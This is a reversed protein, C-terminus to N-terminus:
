EGLPFFLLWWPQHKGARYERGDYRLTYRETKAAGQADGEHRIVRAAVVLDAYGHSAATAMGLTLSAQDYVLEEAAGCFMGKRAESRSMPVGRLVPRLAVGEAVFLSLEDSWIGDPYSAGRADSAFRVGFARVNPALQYPAADIALSREGFHVAADEGVTVRYSSVVRRAAADVVAVVLTKDEDAGTDFAHASLLLKRDHPWPKCAASVVEGKIAASKAVLAAVGDCADGASASQMLLGAVLALM